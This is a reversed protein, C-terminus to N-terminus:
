GTCSKIKGRTASDDNDAAIISCERVECDERNGGAPCSRRALGGVM